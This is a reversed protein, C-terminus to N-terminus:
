KRLEVTKDFSVVMDINRLLDMRIEYDMVLEVGVSTRNIKINDKINFTRVGNVRFRKNMTQAIASDTKHIFGEEEAMGELVNSMINFDSYLPVLKGALSATAGLALITLLWGVAGMGAQKQPAPKFAHIRAVDLAM